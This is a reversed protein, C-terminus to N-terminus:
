IFMLFFFGYNECHCLRVMKEKIKDGVVRKNNEGENVMEAVRIKKTKRSSALCAKM